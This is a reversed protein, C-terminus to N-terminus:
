IHHPSAFNLANNAFTIAFASESAGASASASASTLAFVQLVVGCQM